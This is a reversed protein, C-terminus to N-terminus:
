VNVPLQNLRMKTEQDDEELLFISVNNINGIISGCCNTLYKLIFNSVYVFSHSTIYKQTIQHYPIVHALAFVM